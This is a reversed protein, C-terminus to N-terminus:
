RSSCYYNLIVDPLINQHHYNQLISDVALAVDQLKTFNVSSVSLGATEM